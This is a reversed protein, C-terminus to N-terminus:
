FLYYFSSTLMALFLESKSSVKHKRGMGGNGFGDFITQRKEGQLFVNRVQVHLFPFWQDRKHICAMKSFKGFHEIERIARSDTM